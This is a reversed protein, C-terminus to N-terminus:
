ETLKSHEYLDLCKFNQVYQFKKESKYKNVHLLQILESLSLSLIKQFKCIKILKTTGAHAHFEPSINIM